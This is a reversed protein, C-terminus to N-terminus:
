RLGWVVWYALMIDFKLLHRTIIGLHAPNAGHHQPLSHKKTQSPPCTKSSLGRDAGWSAQSQSRVRCLMSRCAEVNADDKMPAGFM